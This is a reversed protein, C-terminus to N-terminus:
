ELDSCNRKPRSYSPRGGIPPLTPHTTGSLNRGIKRVARPGPKSRTFSMVVEYPRQSWLMNCSLAAKETTNDCLQGGLLAVREKTSYEVGSGAAKAGLLVARTGKREGNRGKRQKTGISDAFAELPSGRSNGEKAAEISTAKRRGLLLREERLDKKKLAVCSLAKKKDDRSSELNQISRMAYSPRRPILNGPGRRRGGAPRNPYCGEPKAQRKENLIGREREHSNGLPSNLVQPARDIGDRSGRLFGGEGESEM